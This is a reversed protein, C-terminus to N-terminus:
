FSGLTPHKISSSLSSFPILHGALASTSSFSCSTVPCELATAESFLYLLTVSSTPWKETFCSRNACKYSRWPSSSHRSLAAETVLARAEKSEQSVFFGLHCLGQRHCRLPPHFSDHILHYLWFALLDLHQWNQYLQQMRHLHQPSPPYNKQFNHDNAKVLGYVSCTHKALLSWSSRGIRKKKM